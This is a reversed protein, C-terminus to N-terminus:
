HIRSYKKGNEYDLSTISKGTHYKRQREKPFAEMLQLTHKYSRQTEDIKTCYKAWLQENICSFLQLLQCGIYAPIICCSFCKEVSLDYNRFFITEPQYNKLESHVWLKKNM